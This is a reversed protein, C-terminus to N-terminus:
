SRPVAARSASDSRAGQPQQIITKLLLRAVADAPAHGLEARRTTLGTTVTVIGNDIWYLGSYTEGNLEVSVECTDM